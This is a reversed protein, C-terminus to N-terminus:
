RVQVNGFEVPAHFILPIPSPADDCSTVGPLLPYPLPAVQTFLDPPTNAGEGNDVVAFIATIGLPLILSNSHTVIGSATAENGVVRLCDIAIHVDGNTFRNHIEAQGTAAGDSFLVASFAFTRLDGSPLELQAGGSASNVVSAAAIDGRATPVTVLAMAVVVILKAATSM